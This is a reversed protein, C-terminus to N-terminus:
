RSERRLFRKGVSNPTVPIESCYRRWQWLGVAMVLVPVIWLPWLQPSAPPPLPEASRFNDARVHVWHIRVDVLSASGGNDAAFRIGDLDETGWETQYFERFIKSDSESAQFSLTAGKRALRLRGWTAQAPRSSGQFIRKGGEPSFARMATFMSAGGPQMLRAVAAAEHEKSVQNVYISLGAGTRSAPKELNLIEFSLTIEFDGHVGFRPVLGVPLKNAEDPRLTIRLGREDIRLARAINTGTLRFENPDVRGGQFTRSFEAEAVVSGACVLWTLTSCLLRM